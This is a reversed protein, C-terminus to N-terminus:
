KKAKEPVPAADLVGIEALRELAMRFTRRVKGITIESRRGGKRNKCVADSEFYEAVKKATLSAVRTGDGFYKAAVRLDAKYSAITKESKGLGALDAAHSEVLEGLTLKTKGKSRAAPKPKPAETPTAKPAAAGKARSAKAPTAKASGKKTAPTKAKAAARTKRAPAKKKEAGKAPEQPGTEDVVTVGGVEEVKAAAKADNTATM